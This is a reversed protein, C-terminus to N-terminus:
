ALYQMERESDSPEAAKAYVNEADEELDKLFSKLLYFTTVFSLGGGTLSSVVPVIDLALELLTLTRCVLSKSFCGIVYTTTIDDALPSKEIASKFIDVSKDVRKALSRLSDEDLGFALCFDRMVKMLMAVNCAFSLGPVPTAGVCCSVLSIKWILGEIAAKKKRLNERSFAPMALILAHRKLHSLENELSEMLSPFDYRDPHWSSILFVRGLPQGAAELQSCCYNRIELLTKEENFNPKRQEALLSSDVKSLIYYCKKKMKLIEHILKNYSLTFREAIVVIFFDYRTFNVKELYDEPRFDTTAIGPLDWISIKSFGPYSYREPNMTRQTVGTEAADKEGDDVGRLANILSSKGVGTEGTIAIDLVTNELLDMERQIEAAVDSLTKGALSVKLERLEDFVAPISIASGM